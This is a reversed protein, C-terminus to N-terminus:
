NLKNGCYKSLKENKSVAKYTINLKDTLQEQTLNQNKRCKAVFKGIRERSM